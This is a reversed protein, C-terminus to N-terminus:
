VPINYFHTWFMIMLFLNCIFNGFIITTSHFVISSYYNSSSNEHSINKDSYKKFLNLINDFIVMKLGFLEFSVKHQPTIKLM